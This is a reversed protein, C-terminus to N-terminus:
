SDKWNIASPVSIHTDQSKVTRSQTVSPQVVIMPSSPTTVHSQLWRVLKATSTTIGNLRWSSYQQLEVIIIATNAPCRSLALLNHAKLLRGLMLKCRRCQLKLRWQRNPRQKPSKSLMWTLWIRCCDSNWIGKVKIYDWTPPPNVWMFLEFKSRNVMCHFKIRNLFIRSFSMDFYWMWSYKARKQVYTNVRIRTTKLASFTVVM